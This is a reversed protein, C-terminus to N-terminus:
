TGSRGGLEDLIEAFNRDGTAENFGTEGKELIGFLLHSEPDDWEPPTWGADARVADVVEQVTIRELSRSPLFRPGDGKVETILAGRALLSLAHEVFSIPLKLESSLGQLSSPSRGEYFSKGILLFIRLALFERQRGGLITFTGVPANPFSQHYFSIQAGLLFVSWSIFIWLLFLPVAGISGYVTAYSVVKSTYYAYGKGSVQWLTGGIIGGALASKLKVKTNPVFAYLCVFAVWIFVYPLLSLFDIDMYSEIFTVAKYSHLTATILLSVSLLVPGVTISTWYLAARHVLSRHRKVGWIENLAVELQGLLFIVSLLLLATGMVGIAGANLRDVIGTALNILREQAGPVLVRFVFPRLSEELERLGGFAKFLSFFVALLPVIAFVTIYTLACAWLFSRERLFHRV